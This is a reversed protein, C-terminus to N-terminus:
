PSPGVASTFTALVDGPVVATDEDVCQRVLRGSVPAELDVTAGGAVLEVIRDGESVEAGEGVLWLSVLVEGAALGLDPVVLLDEAPAQSGPPPAADM